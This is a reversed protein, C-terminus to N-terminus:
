AEGHSAVLDDVVSPDALTSTDGLDESANVEKGMEAIKRLIRRMIKGSRTKPLGPAWHITKLTCFAGLTSRVHTVLSKRLEDSPEEGAMLTIYAYMSQGTVDDPIGVVAAESVEACGVLASEVEATGINHGSVIIVDDTRGTIWYHGDDDRRAADGTLYYGSFPFYTERYRQRNNWVGRAMSPWPHKIALLGEVSNGELEKGEPDLLVPQIGFFPRMASGPKQSWGKAPLPAISIGGTETQWWTDAIPCNSNGVVEYYWQWAKPNIPEGVSGLLRLSSRDHRTVFEDGMRMLARIATPATYLHTVQHKEVIEWLRGADPYSPVGEFIVQTVGVMMPGYTVYSHGTIWGCDATCFWVDGADPQVDFVYKFTSYAGVMYGGTTHMIGKPTGTSGSTYLIFLPHEAGVWLPDCEPKKTPILDNWLVDRKIDYEIPMVEQGLRELVIMSRVMLPPMGKEPAIKCAENAIDYLNIPKNGRMVGDCTIVVFARADVLRDALASASFGGFVVTHVAGIRACALMALPLEPVMPMFLAVRDAPQVGLSKLANAIRCVEELAEAYTYTQPQPATENEDPDNREAIFAIRDGHGAAVHRDLANYSINTYGDQFWKTTPDFGESTDWDYDLILEPDSSPVREWHLQMTAIDHWFAWPRKVSEAYMKEYEELSELNRPRDDAFYAAPIDVSAPPANDAVAATRVAPAKRRARMQRPALLAVSAAAVGWLAASSSSAQQPQAQAGRSHASAHGTASQPVRATPALFAVGDQGRHPGEKDALRWRLSVAALGPLLVYMWQTGGM